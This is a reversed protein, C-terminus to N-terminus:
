PQIPFAGASIAFAVLVVAAVIRVARKRWILPLAAIATPFALVVLIGLGNVEML